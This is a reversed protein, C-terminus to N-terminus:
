MYNSCYWCLNTVCSCSELWVKGCDLHDHHHHHHFLHSRHHHHHWNQHYHLTVLYLYICFRNLIATFVFMMTPTSQSYPMLISIWGVKPPSHSWSKLKSPATLFSKAPITWRIWCVALAVKAKVSSPNAAKLRNYGLPYQVPGAQLPSCISFEMSGILRFDGINEKREGVWRGFRDWRKLDSISNVLSWRFANAVNFWESVFLKFNM